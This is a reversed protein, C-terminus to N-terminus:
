KKRRQKTKREARKEPYIQKPAKTKFELMYGTGSPAIKSALIIDDWWGVLESAQKMLPRTQWADGCFFTTLGSEIWAAREAKGRSIRPDGSIIIWAGEHALARIWVPDETDEPFRERLSVIQHGRGELLRLAEVIKPSICNDFFFKM